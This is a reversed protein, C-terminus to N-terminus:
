FRRSEVSSVVPGGLNWPLYWLSALSRRPKRKKSDELLACFVRTTSGITRVAAFYRRMFREISRNISPHSFGMAEALKHQYDFTLRDEPRNAIYHLYARVRCLFIRAQEFARYEERSVLGREVLDSKNQLSYAAKALWWLTHSDRLGGKGEKVNPELMYRSDGFRVHRIDRETLKADIFEAVKGQITESYFRDCFEEFLKKDGIICRSDLLNSRITIDNRALEIAENITRHSQGVKFGLDWLIYLLSEVVKTAEAESAQDYLFLLDVDSYPFMEARGYGGVAIVSIKDKPESILLYLSSILTDVLKTQRALLNIVKGTAFFEAKLIETEVMLWKRCIELLVVKNTEFDKSIGKLQEDLPLSKPSINTTNRFANKKM